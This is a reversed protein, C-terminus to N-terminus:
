ESNADIIENMAGEWRKQNQHIPLAMEGIMEEARTDMNSLDEYPVKSILDELTLIMEDSLNIQM